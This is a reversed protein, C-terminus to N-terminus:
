NIEIWVENKRMLPFVYPSNYQCLYWNGTMQVGSKALKKIMEERIQPASGTSGRFTTVAVKLKEVSKLQLNKNNPKPANSMSQPMVFMMERNTEIVPATMPIKQKLQNNGDIYRFLTRFSANEESMRHSVLQMNKYERIEIGSIKPLSDFPPTKVSREFVLGYGAWVTLLGGVILTVAEFLKM